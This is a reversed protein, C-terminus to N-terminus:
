DHHKTFGVDFYKNQKSTAIFKVL